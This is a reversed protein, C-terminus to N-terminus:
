LFVIAMKCTETTTEAEYSRKKFSLKVIATNKTHYTPASSSPLQAFFEENLSTSTALPPVAPTAAEKMDHGHNKVESSYCKIEEIGKFSTFTRELKRRKTCVDTSTVTSRSEHGGKDLCSIEYDKASLVAFKDAKKLENGQFMLERKDGEIKVFHEVSLTVPTSSSDCLEGFKLMSNMISSTNEYQLAQANSLKVVSDIVPPFCDAFSIM